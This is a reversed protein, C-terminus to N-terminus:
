VLADKSVTKSAKTVANQIADEMTKTSTGTLEILKHVHDPM